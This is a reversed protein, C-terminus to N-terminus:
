PLRRLLIQHWCCTRDTLESVRRAKERYPALERAVTSSLEAGTWRSKVFLDHLAALARIRGEIARKLGDPTDSHSLSVTAQVTALINKTRHEAERALTAIHEDNRKRDTIDRAIKSAGVIKGQANKVPSVTLSIDILSGDKRQRITEYHEIREGRRIRELIKPEEDHRELPILITVPKGIVEEATYGFLREASKNWSTIIGDLNKTIISDDSSEVISAFRLLHENSERLETETRSREILDAAQRALVDLRLLARETPQHPECWHTSIMGMVQGSRSVLPTSQVARINSRRYEDLDTTGSMLDCAEIDPVVVRCGASLALGCTSSSDLYVWEWFTASQPHFGKWALLRLQNREPDLLQMSAMDSSMLNMAADLIRNYLSELNDEQILLTSIEHLQVIDDPGEPNKRVEAVPASSQQLRGDVRRRQQSYATTFDELSETFGYSRALTLWRREAALFEAKFAPDNTADAREKAEAAREYCQRIQDSFQELM